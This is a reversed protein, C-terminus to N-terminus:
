KNLNLKTYMPYLCYTWLLSSNQHNGILVYTKPAEFFPMWGKKAVLVYTKIRFVKVIM